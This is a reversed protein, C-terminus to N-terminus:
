LMAFFIDDFVAWIKNIMPVAMALMEYSYDFSETESESTGTGNSATSTNGESGTNTIAKGVDTTVTNSSGETNSDTSATGSNNGTTHREGNRDETGAGNNTSTGTDLTTSETTKNGTSHESGAVTTDNTGDSHDNRVTANTLYRDEMLDQLGNQPTDSYKQVSQADNATVVNTVSSNEKDNESNDVSNTVSKLDRTDTSNATTQVKDKSTDDVKNTDSHESKSKTDSETTTASTGDASTDTESHIDNKTDTIMSNSTTTNANTRSVHYMTFVGKDVLEYQKEIFEKYNFLKESLAIRWLPWTELGIEDNFFHQAFGLALRDRYQPSMVNLLEGFIIDKSAKRLNDMNTLDTGAEQLKERISITYKAM